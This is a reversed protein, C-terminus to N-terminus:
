EARAARHLDESGMAVLAFEVRRRRAASTMLGGLVGFSVAAPV